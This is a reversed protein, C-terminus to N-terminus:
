GSILTLQAPYGLAGTTRLAPKARAQLPQCMSFNEIKLPLRPFKDIQVCALQDMGMEAKVAVQSDAERESEDIRHGM